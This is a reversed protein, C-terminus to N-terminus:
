QETLQLRPVINMAQLEQFLLKCAYPLTLENVFDGSRCFQCWSREALLGCQRCVHAVFKDSSLMLREQLLMSAGYGILCDREMEGLRLGGQRSRGETPQRTLGQTPGTARAHMKDAVMHKLKQYYMPGFFVYSSLPEGTIGSTLYDKGAYHYGGKVLAASIDDSPDPGFATADRRVGDLLGAKGGMLELLKGVTMRSPFGHPNMIMDPVLGEDTFPLDEQRAVLGCVGKQGHRSSFKDGVEPRRVSRVLIKIIMDSDVSSTLLVRDVHAKYKNRYKLPAPSYGGEPNLPNEMKDKTNQPEEKNVLYDGDELIEGVFALGDVDIKKSHLKRLGSGGSEESPPEMLRDRTQNPYRKLHTIHKRFVICRGYGRDLAAQNLVVADEIDYGSYSMVAIVANQGSPLEDMHVLDVVRTTVLSRQPYVNVYLVTDMREYQNLAITGIAQKGMACQYTNRPSQNHHPFPILGAVVGLITLPDIEMHTTEEGIDEERLAVLCNNEENVDVYEVCNDALFSNFDRLGTELDGLHEQTVRPKRTERDVIILPRCVRGSDSAIHVARQGEHVYVSVYEGVLGVRRLARLQEAFTHPRRHVGMILGNIFVLYASSNLEEGGLLETDEMGLDVALRQVPRSDDDTTVHTLLALNKVLGCQEGEPTESPCLMGWQSPQLARPGSVKVSKQFQSTVRTMMGLASLYSLRSVLQTVGQRDMKFRSLKWNGTSLVTEMKNTIMDERIYMLADFPAARANKKLASDVGRTLEKNFSKFLDEFLLSIMHGALELRKNGYYDKDDFPIRGAEALLIRRVMHGLYVCRLRFNYHEAPVHPVVLEQITRRAEDHVNSTRKTQRRKSHSAIYSLAQEQTFIGDRAATELSAALVSQFEPECGVLSVIEQDSEVGMAKLVVVIPVADGLNNHKMFISGKHLYLATRVKAEDTSSTVSATVCNHNNSDREVIIRNRSLQEQIVLVKELGKIVFYGGPDFPCEKAAALKAQDMGTLRCRSSRLMIPMRGICVDRRTVQQRNKIYKVDVFIPAAYTLERLRCEHPQVAWPVDGDELVNPEGVRIDTYELYFYPDQSSRVINNAKM